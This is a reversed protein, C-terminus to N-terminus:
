KGNMTLITFYKGSHSAGGKMSGGFHYLINDAALVNSTTASELQMSKIIKGRNEDIFNLAGSTSGVVTINNSLSRPSMNDLGGVLGYGALSLPKQIKTLDFPQVVTKVLKFTETDILCTFSNGGPIFKYESGPIDSHSGDEPNSLTKTVFGYGREKGWDWVNPWHFPVPPNASLVDIEDEVGSPHNVNHIMFYKGDSSTCGNWVHGGLTGGLGAIVPGDNVIPAYTSILGEDFGGASVVPATYSSSLDYAMALGDKASTFARVTGNALTVFHAGISNDANMGRIDQKYYTTTNNRIQGWQYADMALPAHHWKYTGTKADICVLACNLSRRSRESLKAEVAVQGIVANKYVVEAAAFEKDTITGNLLEKQRKLMSTLLPYLTDTEEDEQITLIDELPAVQGNGVGFFLDGTTPEIKLPCWLGPGYHNLNMADYKDIVYSPNVSKDLTRKLPQKSGLLAVGTMTTVGDVATLVTEDSIIDGNSLVFDAFLIVGSGDKREVLKGDIIDHLMLKHTNAITSDIHFGDANYLNSSLDAVIPYWMRITDKGPPYLTAPVVEGAVLKRPGTKFEWLPKGPSLGDAGEEYCIVTGIEANDYLSNWRSFKLAPTITSTYMSYNSTAVYIRTKGEVMTVLNNAYGIKAQEIIVGDILGPDVEKKNYVLSLDDCNIKSYEPGGYNTLYIHGNHLSLPGRVKINEGTLFESVSKKVLLEGTFRDLKCLYNNSVTESLTIGVDNVNNIALDYYYKDDCVGPYTNTDSSGIDTQSFVGLSKITSGTLRPTTHYNSVSLSNFVTSHIVNGDADLHSDKYVTSPQPTANLQLSEINKVINTHSNEINKEINQIDTYTAFDGM